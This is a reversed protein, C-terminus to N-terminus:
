HKIFNTDYINFVPKGNIDNIVQRPMIDSPVEAPDAVILTNGDLRDKDWDINKFYYKDLHFNIMDLFKFGTEFYKWNQSNSQYERPDMQTYFAVFIQPESNRKTFLIQDYQHYHSNTYSVAEQYGYKLGGLPQNFEHFLYTDVKGIFSWTILVVLAIVFLVRRSVRIHKYIHYAAYASILPFLPLLNEVRQTHMYEKTLAAPIPAAILWLLMLKSWAPKNNIVLYFGLLILCFSWLSILWEGPLNFLSSNDRNPSTLFTTSFYGLYNEIFKNGVFLIKNNVVRNWPQPLKDEVQLQRLGGLNEESYIAADSARRGAGSFLVGQAAILLFIGFIAISALLSKKSVTRLKQRYFFLLGGIFLVIFVKFTHYTFLGLGFFLASLFLYRNKKLGKLFFLLGTSFILVGVNSEWALRSYQIHWSSITLFLAALLGIASIGFIEEALFYTLLVTLVGAIAAPLRIATINLGLIAESPITLYSYLAPKYDGFGRPNIPLLEGWEDKGTHLISYGTYGQQIEDGTVGPPYKDLGALRLIGALIVVLALILYKIKM